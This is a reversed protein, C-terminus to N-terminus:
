YVSQINESRIGCVLRDMLAQNLYDGFDCHTALCRLEAAYDLVSKTSSQNRCYFTFRQAIVLLKPEFDKKFVKVLENFSKEKPNTLALLDRLLSYTKAGIVSLFVPVRRETIDNAAFYLEVRELYASVKENESEFEKLTGFTAMTSLIGLRTVLHLIRQLIRSIQSSALTCVIKIITTSFHM